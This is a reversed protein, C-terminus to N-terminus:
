NRQYFSVAFNVFIRFTNATPPDIAQSNLIEKQCKLRAIATSSITSEDNENWCSFIHGLTSSNQASFKILYENNFWKLRQSADLVAEFWTESRRGKNEDAMWLLQPIFWSERRNTELKKSQSDIAVIQVQLIAVPHISHFIWASKGTTVDIPLRIIQM